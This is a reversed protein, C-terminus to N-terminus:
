SVLGLHGIKTLFLLILFEIMMRGNLMAVLILDKHELILDLFLQLGFLIDFSLKEVVKLVDSPFRVQISTLVNSTYDLM